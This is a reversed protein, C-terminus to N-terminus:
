SYGGTLRAVLFSSRRPRGVGEWWPRSARGADLRLLELGSHALGSRLVAVDIPHYHAALEPFGADAYYAASRTEALAQARRDRYMPSDIAVILGGPRLVRSAERISDAIPAHHLSAAYFTVDVSANRVPLRRMDARVRLVGPSSEADILDVAIVDADGLYRAAWGGGSGVDIVVPRPAAIPHGAIVVAARAVSELRAHWLRRNGGEPNERGDAGIWGEQRRLASYQRAFRDAEARDEDDLLDLGGNAAIVSRGCGKCRTLGPEPATGCRPCRLLRYLQATVHIFAVGRPRPSPNTRPPSM